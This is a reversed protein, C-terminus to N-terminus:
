LLKVQMMTGPSQGAVPYRPSSTGRAAQRMSLSVKKSCDTKCERPFYGNALSTFCKEREGETLPIQTCLAWCRSQWLAWFEINNVVVSIIIIGNLLFSDGWDRQPWARADSLARLRTVWETTTKEVADKVCVCRMLLRNRRQIRTFNWNREPSNIHPKLPSLRGTLIHTSIKYVCTAGNVACMIVAETEASFTYKKAGHM